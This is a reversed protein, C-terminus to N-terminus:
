SELLKNAFLINSNVTRKDGWGKEKRKHFAELGLRKHETGIRLNTLAAM